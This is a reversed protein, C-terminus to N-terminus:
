DATTEEPLFRLFAEDGLMVAEDRLRLRGDPTLETLGLTLTERLPEAYVSELSVGFRKEFASLSLGERLRLALIVTEAMERERDPRERFTIQPMNIGYAWGVTAGDSRERKNVLEIYRRPNAVDSFRENNLHSHAGAGLGLWTENHWYALNHRCQRGPRAWNSVEYHEFGEVHLRERSWEFMDAQLDLDPGATRGREVDRTMPTGDELTLAYLSLHEPGMALARELNEQWGAMDQGQLGYILDLNVNEFGAERAWGYADDVETADHIRDLSRLEEDHFSQVGFSIRNFGLERLGRLHTADVTGPNAELTVEADPSIGFQARMARVITTMHDLPLLSPTGGGFFVTTAARGRMAPSWLAAERAVADAYPAMLSDQGAYSNFDCYTCKATCFPIHVYLAFPDSTV